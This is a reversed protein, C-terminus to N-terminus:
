QEPPQPNESMLFPVVVRKAAERLSDVDKPKTAKFIKIRNGNYTHGVVMYDELVESLNHELNDLHISIDHEEQFYAKDLKEILRKERDAQAGEAVGELYEELIKLGEDEPQIEQKKLETKKKTETKTSKTKRKPKPKSATPEASLNPVETTKKPRGRKKKPEPQDSM